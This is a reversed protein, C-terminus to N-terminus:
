KVKFHLYSVMLPYMHDIEGGWVPPQHDGVVIVEVGQMEPKQVLEALEDLFQVQLQTNQCADGHPKMDFKECDFRHNYIDKKSYPQHSTLTMWYFFLKKHAHKKFTQAVVKMLESDCVGKFATCHRLEMFHEGFFINQFGAWRYWINRDYLLGSTGHIAMTKYGESSLQRPLCDKFKNEDLKGLAFGSNTLDLSCLERLEGSVTAGATKFSGHRVFEFNDKQDLIKKLIIKQADEQRVAGWSESIIYLIKESYPQKLHNAARKQHDKLAKLEPTTNAALFFNSTKIQQYLRVQSHAVYFNDRALIAEFRAYTIGLTMMPYSFIMLFIIIFYPYPSKQRKSLYLVLWLMVCTSLLFISVVVLYNIPANPIFSILYRIAGLDMFPFIQIVLMLMDFLMAALFFLGGILRSSRWPLLILFLAILYDFNILPRSTATYFAILLFILNPLFLLIFLQIMERLSPAPYEKKLWSFNNM